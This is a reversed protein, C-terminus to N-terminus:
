KVMMKKEKMGANLHMVSNEAVKTELVEAKFLTSHKGLRFAPVALGYGRELCQERIVSVDENLLIKKRRVSGRRRDQVVEEM